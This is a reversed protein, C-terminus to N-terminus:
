RIASRSSSCCRERRSPNSIRVFQYTDISVGASRQIESGGYGCLSGACRLSRIPSETEVDTPSKIRRGGYAGLGTCCTLVQRRLYGWARDPWTAIGDLISPLEIPWISLTMVGAAACAETGTWGTRRSVGRRRCDCSRRGRRCRPHYCSRRRGAGPPAQWSERGKLTDAAGSM